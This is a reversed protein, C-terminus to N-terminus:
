GLASSSRARHASSPDRHRYANTAILFVLIVYIIATGISSLSLYAEFGLGQWKAFIFIGVMTLALGANAALLWGTKGTVLPAASIAVFVFRAAMMPALIILVGAVPAWHPGLYLSVAWRALLLTLILILGALSAAVLLNFRLPRWYSGGLQFSKAAKQFFVESLSGALLAMPLAALRFAFGFYGVERAGYLHLIFFNAAYLAFASLFTSPVDFTPYQRYRRLLTGLQRRRARRLGLRRIGAFIVAAQALVGTCFGVILGRSDPLLWFLLLQPAATLAVRTVIAIGNHRYAEHKILFAAGSYCFGTLFVSAGFLAATVWTAMDAIQPGFVAYGVGSLVAVPVSIATALALAAFRQAHPAAQIVVDFRGCALAGIISAASVFVSFYGFAISDYTRSLIPYSLFNILQAIATASFLVGVQRLYLRHNVGATWGTWHGGRLCRRRVPPQQAM